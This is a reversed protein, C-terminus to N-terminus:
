EPPRGRREDPRLVAWPTRRVPHGSWARDLPRLSARSRRPRGRPQRRAAPVQRSGAPRVPVAGTKPVPARRRRLRRVRRNPAHRVRRRPRPEHEHVIRGPYEGRGLHERPHHRFQSASAVRHYRHEGDRVGDLADIGFASDGACGVARGQARYLCRLTEVDCEKGARVGVDTIGGVVGSEDLPEPFSDVGDRAIWEGELDSGGQVQDKRSCQERGPNSGCLLASGDHTDSDSRVHMGDLRTPRAPHGSQQELVGVSARAVRVTVDGRVGQAVRQQGRGTEAVQSCDETGVTRLHRACRARGHEGLHAPEQRLRSPRDAVRRDLHHTVTRLDPRSAVLRLAHQGVDQRSVDRAQLHADVWVALEDGSLEVSLTRAEVDLVVTDGDELAAIPGGRAAEPAIHGVMLGHTAGSFRGDTVLAVSDSLGEGVIAATVHLMERMGPGGKPGEYRIVVVDGEHIMGKRHLSRNRFPLAIARLVPATDREPDITPADVCAGKVDYKWGHYACRVGDAELFGYAWRSAM